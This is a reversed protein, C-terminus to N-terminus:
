LIQIIIVTHLLIINGTVHYKTTMFLDISNRTKGSCYVQFFGCMPKLSQRLSLAHLQKKKM